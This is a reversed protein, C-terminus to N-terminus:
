DIEAARGIDIAPRQDLLSADVGCGGFADHTPACAFGGRWPACLEGLFLLGALDALRSLRASRAFRSSNAAVHLAPAMDAVVPGVYPVHDPAATSIVAVALRGCARIGQRCRQRRSNVSKFVRLPFPALRYHLAAARLRGRHRHDLSALERGNSMLTKGLRPLSARHGSQESDHCSRALM